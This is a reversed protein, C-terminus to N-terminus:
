KLGEVVDIVVLAALSALKQRSAVHVAIAGGMSRNALCLLLCVSFLELKTYVFMLTWVIVSELTLYGAGFTHSFRINAVDFKESFFLVASQLM